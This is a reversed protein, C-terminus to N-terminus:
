DTKISCIDIVESDTAEIRLLRTVPDNPPAPMVGIGSSRCAMAVYEQRRSYLDLVRYFYVDDGERARTVTVAQEASVRSSEVTMLGSIGLPAVFYGSHTATIGHAGHPVVIATWDGGPSKPLEWFTIDQRTSAAVFGGSRAVGNISERSLS